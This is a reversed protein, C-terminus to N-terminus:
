VYVLGETVATWKQLQIFQDRCLCELTEIDLEGYTKM